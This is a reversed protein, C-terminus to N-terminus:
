GLISYIYQTLDDFLHYGSVPCSSYYHLIYSMSVSELYPTKEIM